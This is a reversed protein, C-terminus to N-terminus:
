KIVVFQPKKDTFNHYIPFDVIVGLEYTSRYKSEVVIGKLRKWKWFGYVIGKIVYAGNSYLKDRM